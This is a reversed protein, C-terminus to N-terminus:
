KNDQAFYLDLDDTDVGDKEMQSKVIAPAAGFAIQLTYKKIRVRLEDLEEESLQPYVKKPKPPPADEEDQSDAAGGDDEGDSQVDVNLELENEPKPPPPPPAAAAKLGGALVLGIPPPPPIGGPPPPPIVGAAPPPPPSSVASSQPQPSSESQNSPSQGAAGANTPTSTTETPAEKKPPNKIMYELKRELLEILIEGKAIENEANCLEDELSVSSENFLHVFYKASQNLMMLNNLTLEQEVKEDMVLKLELDFLKSKL